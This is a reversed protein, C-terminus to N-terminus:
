ERGIASHHEALEGDLLDSCNFLYMRHMMEGVVSDYSDTRQNVNLHFM